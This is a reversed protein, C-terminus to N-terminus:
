AFEKEMWASLTALGWILHTDEANGALFNKVLHDASEFYIYNFIPAKRNELTHLVHKGDQTRLWHHLPVGFGEKQRASVARGGLKNLLNKLIWKKGDKLLFSAPFKKIYSVLYEDLYPVRVELGHKMSMQDTIALIDQTLYFKRDHNLADDISFIHTFASDPEKAANFKMDPLIKENLISIFNLWTQAPTDAIGLLGKKLLRNQVPLNKLIPSTLQLIPRFRCYNNFASHRNYGAFLEDAGAGSVAVKFGYQRIKRSLKETLFAAPDAIPQDMGCAFEPFEALSSSSVPVEVFEANYKTTTMRSYYTDKTGQSLDKGSLTITFATINKRYVESAIALLLTSDVGGSHMLGVEPFDMQKEVAQYLLSEIKHLPNIEQQLELESYFPVTTESGGSIEMYHGPPVPNINKYFTGPSAYRFNLYSTIANPNFEKEILGSALIGNIESSFLICSSNRSYYLPKIGSSDRATLMKGSTKNVYIFAFMGNILPLCSTGFHMLLNLLIETDGSTNFQVERPLLRRLQQLNYLEGNYALIHNGCSSIFPQDSRPHPDNIRLRNAGVFIKDNRFNIETFASHDPGRHLTALNMRTIHGNDAKGQTDIICNIGCM